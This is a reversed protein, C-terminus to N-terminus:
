ARGRLADPSRRLAKGARQPMLEIRQLRAIGVRIALFAAGFIALAVVIESWGAGLYPYLLSALGFCLLILAVVSLLAATAIMLAAPLLSAANGKIETEALKIEARLLTGFDDAIASIMQGVSLDTHLADQEPQDHDPNM